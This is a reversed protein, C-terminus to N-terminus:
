IVFCIEKGSIDEHTGTILVGQNEVVHAITELVKTQIAPTFYTFALNRCLVLHYNEGPAGDRIDQLEFRVYDKIQEKLCYKDAQHDFAETLLDTPLDRISSKPYCAEKAREIMIPDIDTAVIELNINRYLEKFLLHWLLAITYPEEGSACGCSWVKFTPCGQALLTRILDPIVDSALHDFVYRDRYFRSITVRCLRDLIKWEGPNQDLYEKYQNQNSLNLETLRKDIRRCVQRRVKKFGKWRLHMRPLAWRLFHVCDHNNM